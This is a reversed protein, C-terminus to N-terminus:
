APTRSPRWADAGDGGVVDPVQVGDPEDEYSADGGNEIAARDGPAGSGGCGAVATLCIAALTLVALWAFRHARETV